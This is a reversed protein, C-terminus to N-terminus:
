PRPSSFKLGQWAMLVGAQFYLYTGGPYVWQEILGAKTPVPNIRTPSGLAQIRPDELTRGLVTNARQHPYEGDPLTQFYDELQKTLGELLEPDFQLQKDQELDAFHIYERPHTFIVLQGRTPLSPMTLLLRRFYEYDEPVQFKSPPVTDGWGFAEPRETACGILLLAFTLTAIAKM